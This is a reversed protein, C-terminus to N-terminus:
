LFTLVANFVLAAVFGLPAARFLLQQFLSSRSQETVCSGLILSGGSSFPSISTAQAGVVIAVFLIM